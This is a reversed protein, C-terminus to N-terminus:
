GWSKRRYRDICLETFGFIRIVKLTFWVVDLSYEGCFLGDDIYVGLVADYPLSGFADNM